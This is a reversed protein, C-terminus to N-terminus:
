EKCEREFPSVCRFGFQRRYDRAVTELDRLKAIVIDLSAIQATLSAKEATIEDLSQHYRQM